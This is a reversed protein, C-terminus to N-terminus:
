SSFLHYGDKAISVGFRKLFENVQIIPPSPCERNKYLLFDMVQLM